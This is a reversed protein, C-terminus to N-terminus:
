GGKQDAEGSNNLGETQLGTKKLTGKFLLNHVKMSFYSTATRKVSKRMIM